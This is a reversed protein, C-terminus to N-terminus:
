KIGGMVEQRMLGSLSIYQTFNCMLLFDEEKILQGRYHLKSYKKVLLDMKKFSEACQQQPYKLGLLRIYKKAFRM